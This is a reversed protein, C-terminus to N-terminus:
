PRGHYVGGVPPGKGFRVPNERVAALIPFARPNAIPAGFDAPRTGIHAGGDTLPWHRSIPQPVGQDGRVVVM